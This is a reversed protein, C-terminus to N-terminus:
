HRDRRAPRAVRWRGYEGDGHTEGAAADGAYFHLARGDRAWQRLGDDRGLISYPERAVAGADAYLPPWSAACADSCSSANGRDGDFTYLTRGAYDIRTAGDGTSVSGIGVLRDDVEGIPVPRAVFWVGGFGEGNVDGAAADGAFLHLPRGDFAWQLTGGERRVTSFGDDRDVADTSAFVPPWIEACPGVCSSVGSADREFTYLTRRGPGAVRVEGLSTRATASPPADLVLIETTPVVGIGAEPLAPAVATGDDAPPPATTASVRDLADSADGSCGGLAAAVAAALLLTAFRHSATRPRPVANMPLTKRAVTPATRAIHAVPFYGSTVM